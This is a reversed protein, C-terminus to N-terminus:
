FEFRNIMETKRKEASEKDLEVEIMDPCSQKRGNLVHCSSPCIRMQLKKCRYEKM